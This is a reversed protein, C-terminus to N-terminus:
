ARPRVVLEKYGYTPDEAREFQLHGQELLVLECTTYISNGEVLHGGLTRGSRDSASIHVHMAEATLTGTMSVIEFPGEFVTAKTDDCLRLALQKLSGVGCVIAAAKLNLERALRFLELKLDQNPKLRVTHTVVQFSM